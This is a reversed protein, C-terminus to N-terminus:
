QRAISPIWEYFANRGGFEGQLLNDLDDATKCFRNFERAVLDDIYPLAPIDIAGYVTDDLVFLRMRLNKANMANLTEM